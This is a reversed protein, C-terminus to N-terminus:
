RSHCYEDFASHFGLPVGSTPMEALPGHAHPSYNLPQWRVETDDADAISRPISWCCVPYELARPLPEAVHFQECKSHLETEKILIAFIGMFMVLAQFVDTWIVAKLGGISTYIISVVSIVVISNWLPYGTVAELAVAPGFLVIGMYWTYTLIGLLTGMLRVARSQFRLELYEYASTIRLPHLLPVIFSVAIMQACFVGFTWWVFQLGYVYAEAPLGLMMISSEFSVMLSIAVPLFSMSRGGVLYESTNRKRSGMIAYFIGIGISVCITLGFVVYDGIHFHHTDLVDSGM